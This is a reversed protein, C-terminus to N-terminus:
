YGLPHETEPLAALARRHRGLVHEGRLLPLVRTLEYAALMPGGICAVVLLPLVAPPASFLVAGAIMAVCAAVTFAASGLGILAQRRTM